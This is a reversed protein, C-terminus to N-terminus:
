RVLVKVGWGAALGMVVIFAAGIVRGNFTSKSWGQLV